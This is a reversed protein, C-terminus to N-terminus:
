PMGDVRRLQSFLYDLHEPGLHSWVWYKCSFGAVELWAETGYFGEFTRASSGDAWEHTLAGRAPATNQSTGLGVAGRGCNECPESGSDHGPGSPRDWAVLMEFDNNARRMVAGAAAEGLDAFALLPCTSPAGAEGEWEILYIRDIADPDLTPQDWPPPIQEIAETTTATTTAVTTTTPPVATATAVTTTASTPVGTTAAPMTTPAVGTAAPPTPAATGDGAADGCAAAVLCIVFLLAARRM